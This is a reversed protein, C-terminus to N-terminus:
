QSATPRVQFHDRGLQYRLFGQATRLSVPNEPRRMLRGMPASKEQRAAVEGFRFDHRTETASERGQGAELNRKPTAVQDNARQM